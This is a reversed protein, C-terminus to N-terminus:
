FFFALFFHAKKKKRTRPTDGRASQNSHLRVSTVTTLMCDNGPKVGGSGMWTVTRFERRVLAIMGGGGSTKTSVYATPTRPPPDIVSGVILWLLKGPFQRGFRNNITEEGTKCAHACDPPTAHCPAANSGLPPAPQRRGGPYPM